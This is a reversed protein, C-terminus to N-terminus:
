VIGRQEWLEDAAEKASKLDSGFRARHWKIWAIKNGEVVAPENPWSREPCVSMILDAAHSNHFERLAIAALQLMDDRTKNQDVM